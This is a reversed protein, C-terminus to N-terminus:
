GLRDVLDSVLPNVAFRSTGDPLDYELVARNLYLHEPLGANYVGTDRVRALVEYDDFTLYRRFEESLASTAAELHAATLEQEGADLARQVTERLLQLTQRPHGAGTAFVALRRQRPLESWVPSVIRRGVLLGFAHAAPKDGPSLFAPWATLNVEEFRDQLERHLDGLFRVWPSVSFVGACPLNALLDAHGRLLAEMRDRPWKELDDFVVLLRRELQMELERAAHELLSFVESRQEVLDRRAERRESPLVDTNDVVAASQADSDTPLDLGAQLLKPTGEGLLRRAEEALRKALAPSEEGAARYFRGLLALALELDDPEVPDRIDHRDLWLVHYHGSLERAVRQLETTKGTGHQGYVLFKRRGPRETLRRVIRDSPNAPREAYLRDFREDDPLGFQLDLLEAAWVLADRGATETDGSV